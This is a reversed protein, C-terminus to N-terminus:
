ESEKYINMEYAFQERQAKELTEIFEILKSQKRLDNCLTTADELPFGLSHLRMEENM